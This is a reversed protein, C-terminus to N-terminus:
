RPGILHGINAVLPVPVPGLFHQPPLRQRLLRRVVELRVDEPAKLLIAHAHTQAVQHTDVLEDPGCVERVLLRLIRVRVTDNLRVERTHGSVLDGLHHRPIDDPEEM